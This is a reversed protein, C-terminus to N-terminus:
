KSLMVRIKEWRLFFIYLPENKLLESYSFEYEELNIRGSLNSSLSLHGSIRDPTYKELAENIYILARDKELVECEVGSKECAKLIEYSNKYIM